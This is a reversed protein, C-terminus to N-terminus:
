LSSMGSFPSAACCMQRLELAKSDLFPSRESHDSDDWGLRKGEREGEMCVLSASLDLPGGQSSRSERRIFRKYM